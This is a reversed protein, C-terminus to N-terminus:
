QLAARMQLRRRERLWGAVGNPMVLMAVLLIVGYVIMRLDATSRLVEPLASMAVAATAVGWFSGAGGIIVMILFARM